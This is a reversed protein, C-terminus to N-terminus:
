SPLSKFSHTSKHQMMTKRRLYIECSTLDAMILLKYVSSPHHVVIAIFCVPQQISVAM